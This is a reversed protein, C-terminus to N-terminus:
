SSTENTTSVEITTTSEETLSETSNSTTTTADATSNGDDTTTNITITYNVLPITNNSILGPESEEATPVEPDETVIHVNLTKTGRAALEAMSENQM